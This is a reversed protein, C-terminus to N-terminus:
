PLRGISSCTTVTQPEDLRGIVQRSALIIRLHERHRIIKTTTTKKKVVNRQVRHVVQLSFLLSDGNEYSARTQDSKPRTKNRQDIKMTSSKLGLGEIACWKMIRHHAVSNNPIIQNNKCIFANWNVFSNLVYWLNFRASTWDTDRSSEM